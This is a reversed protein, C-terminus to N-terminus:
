HSSSPALQFDYMDDLEVKSITKLRTALPDAELCEWFWMLHTTTPIEGAVRCM